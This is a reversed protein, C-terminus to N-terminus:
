EGADEVPCAPMRIQRLAKTRGNGLTQLLLRRGNAQHILYAPHQEERGTRPLPIVVEDKHALTQQSTSFIRGLKQRQIALHMLASTYRVILRVRPDTDQFERPNNTHFFTLKLYPVPDITPHEVPCPYPVIQRVGLYPSLPRRIM